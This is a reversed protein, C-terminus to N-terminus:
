NQKNYADESYLKSHIEKIYFLKYKLSGFIQIVLTILGEMKLM